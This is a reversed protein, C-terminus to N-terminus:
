YIIYVNMYMCVQVCCENIEASTMMTLLLSHHGSVVEKEVKKFEPRYARLMNWRNKKPQNPRVDARYIKNASTSAVCASVYLLLDIAEPPYSMVMAVFQTLAHDSINSHFQKVFARLAKSYEYKKKYEDSQLMLRYAQACLSFNTHFSTTPAVATHDQARVAHEPSCLYL